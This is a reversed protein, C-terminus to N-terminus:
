NHGVRQSEMSQLGGQEETRPSEGPLFLPTLQWTGRWPIKGVSPSFRHGEHRSCKAPANKVVLAVQSFLHVRSFFQLM